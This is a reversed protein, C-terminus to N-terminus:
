EATESTSSDSETPTQSSTNKEQVSSDGTVIDTIDLMNTSEGVVRPLAGDWNDYFRQKFIDESLSDSIMKNSDAEAKAAIRKSEAEANAVNLRVTADAESKEVAKKNDIQQQEYSLQATQKQAIAQNYSEDFDANNIVVRAIRVVNQGYKEDLAIQLNEMVLPEIKGRNTAEADTLGISSEKISSSVLNSAILSERYNSVNAFIWSSKEHLIQYSVVLDEYYIATRSKTESWIQGSITIDQLKNNVTEIEQILPIKLNFGNSLPIPDIQGFTTRVGTYSTPIITFADSIITVLIGFGIIIVPIKFSFPKEKNKAKSLVAFIVALFIILIGLLAIFSNMIIVTGKRQLIQAINDDSSIIENM